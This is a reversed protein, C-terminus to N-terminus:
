RAIRLLVSKAVHETNKGERRSLVVIPHDMPKVWPECYLVITRSTERPTILIGNLGIDLVRVGHPLGQVELPVRGAFKNHREIHVTLRVQHGPQVSIASQETTTSLDGGERLTPVGGMAERIVEKGAVQARAILKLPIAQVPKRATADAHLAFATSNEDAPISTKPASFGPPLNLLEVQIEDAFGDKRDVSVTVPIAGGKWVGPTTPNFRVTFDPRPSRLTLTYAHEISGQGRADRIVAQYEGEAPPDFDLHSDKGFGAGGDDNRSYLTILPMGNPPFTTGPPHLTVKYMPAGMPHQSPTTGLYGLRQGGQSFFQCDDDPNKPLARIRMLETGCYLYDNVALESWAELRIGPSVSDHDRFTSYTRALSRLTMRPVPNGRADLIELYSDLPSGLRRAAVDLLLREGKKAQFRWHHREDAQTLRGHGTMGPKLLDTGTTHLADAFEGVSVTPAGLPIEGTTTLPIPIKSGLAADPPITVAVEHQKGLFVGELHVKATTGRQLSLPYVSTVLPLAGIQLRYTMGPDGRYERDHIGLAYRGARPFTYGLLGNGRRAVVKGDADILQLVPDLKSGLASTVAQVGIEEGARADFVFYDVEGARGIAGVVTTNVRILQGTRPSDNPEIEPQAPYCDVLFTVPASEGAENKLKLPYAGAPTTAPFTIEYSGAKVPRVTVGPAPALLEAKEAHSADLTIMLSQGRVASSPTVKRLIPPKPKAPLPEALKKGSQADLLVLKGDYRGLALQKQDPSVALSLVVEPQAEYVKQEVLRASDWQKCSRDESLSYLNRGASGYVLRTIPAAHAFASHILKGGLRSVEWIRISRDVGAAALTKGEPHWAVSYLWDTAESLTYLRAGTAVDWVKVARDAAASALLQGDPSFALAHVADSHDKLARAEKNSRLDWLKILRDYSCSALLTGDPSFALDHILDKHASITRTPPGSFAGRPDAQYLRIEGAVGVKGSAVALLKGTRDTALATVQDTQGSLKGQEAGTTGELFLVEGYSGVALTKGGALYCLAALPSALTSRPKIAPLTSPANASDDKAGAVVWKRLLAREAPSPQRAKKPPMPPRGTGEVVRVLLSQDPNGPVLAKGHEGGAVIGKYSDLSLGGDPHDGPHCEVCYRALFPKIDRAYSPVQQGPAIPSLALLLLASVLPLPLRMM